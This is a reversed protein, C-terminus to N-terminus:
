VANAIHVEVTTKIFDSQYTFGRENHSFWSQEYGLKCLREYESLMLNIAEAYTKAYGLVFTDITLLFRGVTAQTVVYLSKKKM